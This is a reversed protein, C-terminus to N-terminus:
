KLYYAKGSISVLLFKEEPQKNLVLNDISLIRNAKNLNQLTLLTQAFNGQINFSFSVNSLSMKTKGSPITTDIINTPQVQLASISSLNYTSTQISRIISTVESNEPIATKIRTKIEPSINQYNARAQSLSEAKNNLAQLTQQNEALSKQLNAITSITPRIAFIILITITFLSFIYPTASKVVKNELVPKIPTYYRSYKAEVM